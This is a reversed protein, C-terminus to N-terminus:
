KSVVKSIHAPQSVVSVYVASAPQISAALILFYAKSGLSSVAARYEDFMAAATKPEATGNNALDAKRKLADLGVPSLDLIGAELFPRGPRHLEYFRTVTLPAACATTALRM